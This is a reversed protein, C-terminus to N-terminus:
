FPDIYAFVRALGNGGTWNSQLKGCRFEMSKIDTVPIALQKTFSYVRYDASDNETTFTLTNGTFTFHGYMQQFSGNHALEEGDAEDDTLSVYFPGSLGAGYDRCYLFFVTNGQSDKLKWDFDLQDPTWNLSSAGFYVRWSHHFYPLAVPLDPQMGILIGDPQVFAWPGPSGAIAGDGTSVGNSAMVQRMDSNGFLSNWYALESESLADLQAQTAAPNYAQNSDPEDGFAHWSFLAGSTWTEPGISNGTGFFGGIVRDVASPTNILDNYDGSTAVSALAAPKFKQEGEAWRLIDGGTLPIFAEGWPAYTITLPLSQDEARLASIDQDLAFARLAGNREDVPGTNALVSSNGITFVATVNDLLDLKSSQDEGTSSTNSVYIYNVSSHVEYVNPGDLASNSRTDWQLDAGEQYLEFDDMDQIGLSVDGTEGNVSTVPAAPAEPLPVPRFKEEVDDWRLVDGEDPLLTTINVEASTSVLIDGSLEAGSVNSPDWSGGGGIGLLLWRAGGDLGVSTYGSEGAGANVVWTQGQDDSLYVDYSGASLVDNIDVGNADYQNLYLYRKNLVRQDYEGPNDANGKRYALASSIVDFQVDSLDNISEVDSSGGGGIEKITGDTHKTFLKGDATNVALEAPQLDVSQPAEGSVGSAKAIIRANLEAM